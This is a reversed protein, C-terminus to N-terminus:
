LNFFAIFLQYLVKEEDTLCGGWIARWVTVGIYVLGLAANVNYCKAFKWLIVSGVRKWALCM